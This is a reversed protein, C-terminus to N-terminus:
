KSPRQEVYVNCIFLPPVNTNGRIPTPSSVTCLFGQRNMKNSYIQAEALTCFRVQYVLQPEFFINPKPIDNNGGGAGFMANAYSGFAFMCLVMTGSLLFKVKM